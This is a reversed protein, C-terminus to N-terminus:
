SAARHRTRALLAAVRGLFLGHRLLLALRAEPIRLRHYLFPGGETYCLVLEGRLRRALPVKTGSMAPKETRNTEEQNFHSMKLSTM